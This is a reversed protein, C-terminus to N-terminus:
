LLCHLSLEFLSSPQCVLFSGQSFVYVAVIEKKVKDRGSSFSPIYRSTVSAAPSEVSTLDCLEREDQSESINEELKIIQSKVHINFIKPQVIRDKHILNTQITSADELKILLIHITTLSMFEPTLSSPDM